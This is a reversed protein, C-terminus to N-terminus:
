TIMPARRCDRIRAEEGARASLLIVPIESLQDDARIERLLGFGDLGPMMVDALILDPKRARVAALASEGDSFVHVNFRGGLLRSVYARM